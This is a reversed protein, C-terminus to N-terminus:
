QHPQIHSVLLCLLLAVTGVTLSVHLASLHRLRLKSATGSNDSTGLPSSPVSSALGAAAASEKLETNHEPAADDTM